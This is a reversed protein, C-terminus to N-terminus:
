TPANGTSVTLPGFSVLVPRQIGVVATSRGGDRQGGVHAVLVSLLRDGGAVLHVDRLRDLGHM